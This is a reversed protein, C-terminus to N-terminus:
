NKSLGPPGNQEIVYGAQLLMTELVDPNRSEIIRWRQWPTERKEIASLFGRSYGYMRCHGNWLMALHLDTWGEMKRLYKCIYGACNVNISKPKELNARGHRWNSNLVDYPALWRLRPFFIHIHPHGTGKQVEVVWMYQLRRWGRRRRYENIANIFRRVDQGYNTWAEQKGTKKPDYTLTEM